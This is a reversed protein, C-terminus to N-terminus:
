NIISFQINFIVEELINRDLQQKAHNIMAEREKEIEEEREFFERKLRSTKKKAKSLTEQFILVESGSLGDAMAQRDIEKEAKKAEKLDAELFGIRDDAWNHFKKFERQMMAADTDELYKLREQKIKLHLNCNAL